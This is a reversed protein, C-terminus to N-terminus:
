AIPRVTRALSKEIDNCIKLHHWTHVGCFRLWQAATFWGAVHHQFRLTCAALQPVLDPLPAACERCQRMLENIGARDPTAPPAVFDPVRARGRPIFGTTLLIRGILRPRGREACRAPDLESPETVLQRVVRLISSNAMGLHHVHHAISWGSVPTVAFLTADDLAALSECRDQLTNIRALSRCIRNSM